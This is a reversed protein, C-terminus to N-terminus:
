RRMRSSSRGGDLQHDIQGDQRFVMSLTKVDDIEFRTADAIEIDCFSIGLVWLKHKCADFYFSGGMLENAAKKRLSANKWPNRAVMHRNAALM